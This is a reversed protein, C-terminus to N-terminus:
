NSLEPYDDIVQDMRQKQNNTLNASENEHYWYSMTNKVTTEPIIYNAPKNPISPCVVPYNYPYGNIKLGESGRIQHCAYNGPAASYSQGGKYLVVSEGNQYGGENQIIASYLNNLSYVFGNFYDIPTDDISAYVYNIVDNEFDVKYNAWDGPLQISRNPLNEYLGSYLCSNINNTTCHILSDNWFTEFTHWLGFQHGIEHALTHSWPYKEIVFSKRTGNAIGGIQRGGSYVNDFIFGTEANNSSNNKLCNLQDQNQADFTEIPSGNCILYDHTLKNLIPTRWGSYLRKLEEVSETISFADYGTGNSTKVAWLDYKVIPLNSTKVEINKAYQIIDGDLAEVEIVMSYNGAKKFAGNIFYSITGQNNENVFFYESNDMTPFQSGIMGSGSVEIPTIFEQINTKIKKIKKGINLDFGFAPSKIEGQTFSSQGIYNLNQFVKLNINKYVIPNIGDSVMIKIQHSGIHTANPEFSITQGSITLPLKSDVQIELNDEEVNFINLKKNLVNGAVANITDENIIPPSNIINSQIITSQANGIIKGNIIIPFTHQGNVKNKGNFKIKLVCSQQRNLVRGQCTNYLINFGSNTISEIVNLPESISGVNQIFITKIIQQNNTVNGIIGDNKIQIIPTASQNTRKINLIFFRNGITTAIRIIKLGKVQQSFNIVISCIEGSIYSKVCDKSFNLDSNGIISKIQGTVNLAKIALTIQGPENNNLSIESYNLLNNENVIVLDKDTSSYEIKQVEEQSKPNNNISKIDNNKGCGFVAIIIMILLIKMTQLHFIM